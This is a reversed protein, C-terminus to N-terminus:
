VVRLRPSQGPREWRCSTVYPPVVLSFEARRPPEEALGWQVIEVGEVPGVLDTWGRDPLSIVTM